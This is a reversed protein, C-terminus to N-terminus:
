CLFCTSSKTPLNRGGFMPVLRWPVQCCLYFRTELVFFFYHTFLYFLLLLFLLFFIFYYLVFAFLFHLCFTM